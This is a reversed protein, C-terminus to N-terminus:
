RTGFQLVHKVGLLCGHTVQQLFNYDLTEWTDNATHYHPNRLFSTDTVMLAPYNRDWFPSHDSLRTPPFVEGNGPVDLWEVPLGEAQTLGACFTQRFALSRSNGVVGIFNGTTPYVGELGPLITQSGPHHDCYGLMELSIMGVLPIKEESMLRAHEAGGLMGSEELDFFILELDCVADDPWCTPLVRAIELLAAVASGNDDAGPSHTVSDLHAGVCVRPRNGPPHAPHVAILNTGNLS